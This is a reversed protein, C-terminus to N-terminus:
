HFVVKLDFSNFAISIEFETSSTKKVCPSIRKGINSGSNILFTMSISDADHGSPLTLTQKYEGGDAVWDAQALIVYEKVLNKASIKDSTVGDHTHTDLTEISNSLPLSFSNGREGLEPWTLYKGQAM